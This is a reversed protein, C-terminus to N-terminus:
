SNILTNAQILIYRYYNYCKQTHSINYTLSILHCRSFIYANHLMNPISTSKMQEQFGCNRLTSLSTFHIIQGTNLMFGCRAVSVSLRPTERSVSKM